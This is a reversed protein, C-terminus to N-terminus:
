NRGVMGSCTAIVYAGSSTSEKWDEGDVTIKCTVTGFEGLNQASIYAFDGGEMIYTKKFPVNSDRQETGGTENEYTLSVRNATGEIEYVVTHTSPLSFSPSSSSPSSSLCIGPLGILLCVFILLIFILISLPHSKRKERTKKPLRIRLDNGCYRCFVADAKITEACFQCKKTDNVM